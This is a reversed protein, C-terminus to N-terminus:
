NKKNECSMGSESCTLCRRSCCVFLAAYTQPHAIAGQALPLFVCVSAFPDEIIQSSIRVASFCFFFFFNGQRRFTMVCCPKVGKPEKAVASRVHPHTITVDSTSFTPATLIHSQSPSCFRCAKLDLCFGRLVCVRCSEDKRFHLVSQSRSSSCFYVFLQPIWQRYNRM